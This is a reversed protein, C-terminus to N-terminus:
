AYNLDGKSIYDKNTPALASHRLAICCLGLQKLFIQWHNDRKPQLCSSSRMFLTCIKWSCLHQSKTCNPRTRSSRISRLPFPYVSFVHAGSAISVNLALAASQWSETPQSLDHATDFWGSKPNIEGGLTLRRAPFVQKGLFALGSVFNQCRKKGVQQWDLHQQQTM